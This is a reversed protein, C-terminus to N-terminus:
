ETDTVQSLKVIVMGNHHTVSGHAPWCPMSAAYETASATLEMSAHGYNYGLTHMLGIIRRSSWYNAPDVNQDWDFFSHGMTEGIVCANNPRFPYHGIFVVPYSPAETGEYKQAHFDPIQKNIETILANALMVDQEYRLSDTYYLRTSNQAQTWTTILCLIGAAFCLYPHVTRHKHQLAASADSIVHANRFDQLLLILLYAGFATVFPLVLQSRIPPREGCLITMYFPSLFCAGLCLLYIWKGKQSNGKCLWVLVAITLALCILFFTSSYYPAQGLLAHVLHSFVRYLGGSIGYEKWYIQNSLYSSGSFFLSSVLQNILFGILFLGIAKGIWLFVNRLTMGKSHSCSYYYLLFVAIVGFIYLTVMSQYVGFLLIMLALSAMGARKSGETIWYFSCLLCVSLLTMSLTIEMSQLSFYFQETLIPHSVLICSFATFAWIYKRDKAALGLVQQFLYAFGLCTSVLFFLTMAGAFYPNYLYSGTLRKLLVLGQRGTQLWGDYFGQQLRIVDETDISIINSFLKSGHVLFALLATALVAYRNSFAFTGFDKFVSSFTFSEGNSKPTSSNM